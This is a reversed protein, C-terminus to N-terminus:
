TGRVTQFVGALNRKLQDLHLRAAVKTLVVDNADLIVVLPALPMRAISARISAGVAHMRRFQHRRPAVVTGEHRIKKWKVFYRHNGCNPASQSAWRANM